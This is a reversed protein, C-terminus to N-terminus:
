QEAAQEQDGAADGSRKRRRREAHAAEPVHTTEAASWHRAASWHCPRTGAATSKDAPRRAPVPPWRSIRRNNAATTAAT